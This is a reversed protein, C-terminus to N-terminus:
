SQPRAGPRHIRGKATARATAALPQPADEVAPRGSMSRVNSTRQCSTALWSCADNEALRIVNWPPRQDACIAIV